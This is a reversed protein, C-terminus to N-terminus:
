KFQLERNVASHEVTSSGPFRELSKNEHYYLPEIQAQQVFKRPQFRRHRGLDNKNDILQQQALIRCPVSHEFQWFSFSWETSDDSHTISLGSNNRPGEQHSADGSRGRQTLCSTDRRYALSYRCRLNARTTMAM